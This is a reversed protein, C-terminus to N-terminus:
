GPGRLRTASVQMHDSAITSGYPLAPAPRAAGALVRLTARLGVGPALSFSANPRATPARLTPGTPSAPDSPEMQIIVHKPFRKKMAEYFRASLAECSSVSRDVNDIATDTVRKLTLCLPEGLARLFDSDSYTGGERIGAPDLLPQVKERHLLSRENLVQVADNFRHSEIMIELVLPSYCQFQFNNPTHQRMRLLLWKSLSLLASRSANSARTRERFNRASSTRRARSMRM